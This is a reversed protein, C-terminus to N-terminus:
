RNVFALDFNLGLSLSLARSLSLLCSVPLLLRGLIGLTRSGGYDKAGIQQRALDPQNLNNQKERHKAYQRSQFLNKKLTRAHTHPPPPQSIPIRLDHLVSCETPHVTLCTEQELGRCLPSIFLHEPSQERSELYTCRNPRKAFLRGGYIGLM